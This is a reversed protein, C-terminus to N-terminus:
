CIIENWLIEHSNSESCDCESYMRWLCEELNSFTHQLAGWVRTTAMVSHKLYDDENDGDLKGQAETLGKVFKQLSSNQLIYDKLM